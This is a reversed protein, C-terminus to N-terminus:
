AHALRSMGWDDRDENMMFEAHDVASQWDVDHVHAWHILDTLMDGLQVHPPEGSDTFMEIALDARFVAREHTDQPPAWTSALLGKTAGVAQDRLDSRMPQYETM